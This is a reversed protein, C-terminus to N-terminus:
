HQSGPWAFLSCATLESSTPPKKRFHEEILFALFVPSISATTFICITTIWELSVSSPSRSLHNGPHKLNKDKTHRVEEQLTHTQQSTPCASSGPQQSMGQASSSPEASCLQSLAGTEVGTSGGPQIVFPTGQEADGNVQLRNQHNLYHNGQQNAKATINSRLAFCFISGIQDFNSRTVTIVQLTVAASQM